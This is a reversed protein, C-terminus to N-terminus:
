NLSWKRLLAEVREPDQITYYRRDGGHSTDHKALLGLDSLTALRSPHFGGQFRSQYMRLIWKYCIVREEVSPPEAKCYADCSWLVQRLESDNELDHTKM